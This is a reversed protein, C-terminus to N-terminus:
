EAAGEDAAFGEVDGAEDIVKAEAGLGAGLEGRLEIREELL